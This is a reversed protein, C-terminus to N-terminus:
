TELPHKDDDDVGNVLKRALTLGSVVGEFYTASYREQDRRKSVTQYKGILAELRTSLAKDVTGRAKAKTSTLKTKSKTKTAM